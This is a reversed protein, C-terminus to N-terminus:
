MVEELAAPEGSAADVAEEETEDESDVALDNESIEESDGESSMPIFLWKQFGQFCLEGYQQKKQRTVEVCWAPGFSDNDEINWPLLFDRLKWGVSGDGSVLYKAVRVAEQQAKLYTESHRSIINGLEVSPCAVQFVVRDFRPGLLEFYSLDVLPPPRTPRSEHCPALVSLKIQKAPLDKNEQIYKHFCDAVLYPVLHENMRPVFVHLSTNQTNRSQNRPKASPKGSIDNMSPKSLWLEHHGEAERQTNLVPGDLSRVRWIDCLEATLMIPKTKGGDPGCFCPSCSAGRYWQVLAEDHIQKCSLMWQPPNEHRYIGNYMYFFHLTVGLKPRINTNLWALSVGQFADDYIRERLELPLTFFSTCSESGSPPAPTM